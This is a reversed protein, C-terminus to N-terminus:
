INDICIYHMDDINLCNNRNMNFHSSMSGHKVKWLSVTQDKNWTFWHCCFSSSPRQFIYIYIYFTYFSQVGFRFRFPAAVWVSNCQNSCISKDGRMSLSIFVYNLILHIANLHTVLNVNQFTHTLIRLNHWSSTYTGIGVNLLIDLIEAEGQGVQANYWISILGM